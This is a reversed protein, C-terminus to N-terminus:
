LEKVKKIRIDKANDFTISRSLLDYIEDGYSMILYLYYTLIELYKKEGKDSLKVKIIYPELYDYYETFFPYKESMKEIVDSLLEPGEEKLIFHPTFHPYVNMLYGNIKKDKNPKRTLNCYNEKVEQILINYEELSIRNKFHNYIDDLIYNMAEISNILGKNRINNIMEDTCMTYHFVYLTDYEKAVFNEKIVKLADEEELNKPIKEIKKILEYKSIEYVSALSAILTEKTEADLYKM